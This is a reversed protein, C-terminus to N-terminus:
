SATGTAQEENGTVELSAALEALLRSGLRLLRSALSRLPHGRFRKVARFEHRLAKVKDDIELELQIRNMSEFGM